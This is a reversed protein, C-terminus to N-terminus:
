VIRSRTKIFVQLAKGIPEDMKFLQYGISHSLLENKMADIGLYLRSVYESRARKANVKVRKGTELDEFLINGTYEFNMEREGMLHLVVVENNNRKLQKITQMLEEGQQHLDSVFFVLEKQGRDHLKQFSVTDTPWKGQNQIQLLQHLLMNFQQKQVTPHLGFVDQDNLAFLGVADGQQQALYALSAILVRAFDMKSIGNEQHLMSKSADLIFKVQIHTDVESQKIYYRGSRALMKWDLLRMDDGPQYARYQSFQLGQGVRRSQNLGMFHGEVIVKAILALGSISHIIEPKLLQQYDQKM